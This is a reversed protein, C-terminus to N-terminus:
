VYYTNTISSAVVFNYTSMENMMELNHRTAEVKLWDNLPKIKPPSNFHEKKKEELNQKEQIDM